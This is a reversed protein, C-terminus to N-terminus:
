LWFSFFLMVRKSCRMLLSTLTKSYLYIVGKKKRGHENDCVHSSFLFPSTSLLLDDFVDSLVWFM